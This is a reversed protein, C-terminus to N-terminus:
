KHVPLWSVNTHISTSTNGRFRDSKTFDPDHIVWHDPDRRERQVIQPKVGFHRTNGRLLTAIMNQILEKLM